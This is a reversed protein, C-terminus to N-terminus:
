IKKKLKQVSGIGHFLDSKAYRIANTVGPADEALKFCDRINRKKVWENNPDCFKARNISLGVGEFPDKGEHKLNEHIRAKDAGSVALIDASKCDKYYAVFVHQLFLRTQSSDAFLARKEEALTAHGTMLLSYFILSIFILRTQLM